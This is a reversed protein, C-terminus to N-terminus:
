PVPTGLFGLVRRQISRDGDRWLFASAPPLKSREARPTSSPPLGGVFSLMEWGGHLLVVLSRTREDDPRTRNAELSLSKPTANMWDKADANAGANLLVEVVHLPTDPEVCAMHLPTRSTLKSAANVDAGKSVLMRVVERAEPERARKVAAHLATVGYANVARAVVLASGEEEEGGLLRRAEDWVGAECASLLAREREEADTRAAGGWALAMRRRREDGSRAVVRGEGGGGVVVAAAGEGHGGRASGRRGM